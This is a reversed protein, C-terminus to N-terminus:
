RNLFIQLLIYPSFHFVFNTDVVTTEEPILSKKGELADM